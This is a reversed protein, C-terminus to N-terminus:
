RAPLQLEMLDKGVHVRGSFDRRVPRFRNDPIDTPVLHTLVLNKAGAAEAVKGVQTLTTHAEILHERMPGGVAPPLAATFEAVWLEDIVEHVLYDCGQALDILNDSPRTDGSVVVSGDPTDFRFGFAPAAPHHDVLTATITVPGDVLVPIRTGVPLAPPVGGADVTWHASIDIDAIDFVSDPDVFNNDRRRDNFDIAFAQRLYGTMEKLGPTPDAPNIVPPAPRSPPFVRPLVGRNGPGRVAIPSATRGGNETNTPSTMYVAPWETFHDSHLHTFLIARVRMLASQIGEGALGAQVLRGPSGHGLDVVYVNGDFVVATSVGARDDSVFVPGGATGLLVLSTRAHKGATGEGSSAEARSSVGLTSATALAAVGGLLGRRRLTPGYEGVIRTLEDCM